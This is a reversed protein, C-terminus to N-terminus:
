KYQQYMKKYTQKEQDTLSQWGKTTYKNVLKQFEGGQQKETNAAAGAAFLGPVLAPAIRIVKKIKDFSPVAEEELKRYTDYDYRRKRYGEYLEPNTQGKTKFHKQLDGEKLYWNYLNDDGKAELDKLKKVAQKDNLNSNIKFEEIKKVRAAMLESHLEAFSAKWTEDNLKKSKRPAVMAENILKLTEGKNKNIYYAYEENGEVLDDIWDYGLQLDHGSEHAATNAVDVLNEYKRKQANVVIGKKYDKAPKGIAAGWTKPNFFNFKANPVLSYLYHDLTSGFTVTADNYRAGRAPTTRADAATRPSLSLLEPDNGRQILKSRRITNPINSSGPISNTSEKIKTVKEKFDPDLLKEQEAYLGERKKSLKKLENKYLEDKVDDYDSEVLRRRIDRGQINIREIEDSLKYYADPDTIAWSAALRANEDVVEKQAKEIKLNRVIVDTEPVDLGQKKYAEVIKEYEKVNGFVNYGPYKNEIFKQVDETQYMIPISSVSSKNQISKPAVINDTQPKVNDVSSIFSRMNDAKDASKLLKSGAYAFPIVEAADLISGFREQEQPTSVYYPLPSKLYNAFGQGFSKIDKTVEEPGREYLRQAAGVPSVDKLTRATYASKNSIIKMIEKFKDFGKASFDVPKNAEVSIEPLNSLSNYIPTGDEDITDLLAGQKFRKYQEPTFRVSGKKQYKPLSKIRYKKNLNM